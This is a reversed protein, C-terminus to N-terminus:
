TPLKAMRSGGLDIVFSRYDQKNSMSGRCLMHKSSTEDKSYEWIARQEDLRWMNQPLRLRHRCCCFPFSMKKRQKESSAFDRWTIWAHLQGWLLISHLFNAFVQGSHRSLLRLFCCTAFLRYPCQVCPGHAFTPITMNSNDQSCAHGSAPYRCAAPCM